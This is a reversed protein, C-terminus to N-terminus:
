RCWRRVALLKRAGDGPSSPQRAQKLQHPYLGAAGCQFPPRSAGDGPAAKRSSLPAPAAGGGGAAAAQPAPRPRGLAWEEKGRVALGNVGGSPDVALVALSGPAGAIAGKFYRVDPPGHVTPTSGGGRDVVIKAAPDWVEFRQLM